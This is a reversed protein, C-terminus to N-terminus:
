VTTLSQNSNQSKIYILAGVSLLSLSAVVVITTDRDERKAREAEQQLKADLLKGTLLKKYDAVRQKRAQNNKAVKGVASATVTTATLAVYVWSM